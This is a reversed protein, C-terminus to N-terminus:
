LRLDSDEVNFVSKVDFFVSEESCYSLISEIGSQVYIDHGVCLLVGSYSALDPQKILDIAYALKVEDPDAIPDHIDVLLGLKSLETVIDIVKTNRIDRCNEKFTFGLVLVRSGLNLCNKRLMEQVLKSVINKPMSDNLRRGALIIEPYYGVQRAKHTLYYPDIGICHGGVIGPRFPMFNWKTGAANLIETTDLKLINFLESFENVLAINIDRQVNEIVKAAEAVQISSCRYTGADIISSYLQDVFELCPDSSGSVLKVIDKLRRQKDGPNIREPSYGVHFDLKYQLKSIKEIEPVCVEETAGPYVTSEFVVLNGKSLARGVLRSASKLASLDPNFNQDIPTPVTIIYVDADKIQTEDSTLVCLELQELDQDDVENTLDRQEALESIRKQSIDYGTTSYKKSFEILLPLGVYGLGIICIRPTKDNEYLKMM